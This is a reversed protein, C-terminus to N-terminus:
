SVKIFLFNVLVAKKLNYIEKRGIKIL